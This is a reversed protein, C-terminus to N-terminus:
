VPLIARTVEGNPVFELDYMVPNESGADLTFKHSKLFVEAEYRYGGGNSDPEDFQLTRTGQGDFFWDTVLRRVESVASTGVAKLKFSADKGCQIRLMWETGFVRVEGTKREFVAELTNSSGSIDQLVGNENDLKVVTDCATFASTTAPM